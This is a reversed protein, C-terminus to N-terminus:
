KDQEGKLRKIEGLVLVADQYLAQWDVQKPCTKLEECMLGEKVAKQVLVLSDVAAALVEGGAAAGMCEEREVMTELGKARCEAIKRDVFSAWNLSVEDAIADSLVVTQVAKGKPTSACGSGLALAGVMMVRAITHM